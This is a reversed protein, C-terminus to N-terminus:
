VVQLAPGTGETSSDGERGGGGTVTAAPPPVLVALACGSKHTIEADESAGQPIEASCVPCMAMDDAWERLFALLAEYHECARHGDRECTVKRPSRIRQESIAEPEVSVALRVAASRAQCPRCQASGEPVVMPCTRCTRKAHEVGKPMLPLTTTSTM